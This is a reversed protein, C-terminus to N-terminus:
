LKSKSVFCKVKCFSQPLDLLVLLPKLLLPPPLLLGDPLFLRPQLLLPPPLFLELVLPVLLVLFLCGEL